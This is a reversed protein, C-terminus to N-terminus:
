KSSYLVGRSIFEVEDVRFVEQSGPSVKLICINIAGGDSQIPFSTAKRFRPHVIIYNTLSSKYVEPVDLVRVLLCRRPGFLWSGLRVKRIYECCFPLHNPTGMEEPVVILRTLTHSEIM